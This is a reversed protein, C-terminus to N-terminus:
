DDARLAPSFRQLAWGVVGPVHRLPGYTAPYIVRHKKKKVAELVADALGQPEGWRQVKQGLSPQLRSTGYAGMETRVPGPYVVVMHVGSGRLEGILTESAVALGAKSAAYWAMGSPPAYAAVSSVNVITGLGRERMGPLCRRSFRLPTFLNLRLMREGADPDIAWGYDVIQQGANNILHDIPGQAQEADAVVDDVVSPDSLDAEIVHAGGLEAALQELLPKRRAVLTLRLGQGAFTRALAEGIGASAGTLLLHGPSIM